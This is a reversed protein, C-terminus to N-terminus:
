EGKLKALETEFRALKEREETIKAAPAKSVFRENSLMGKARAIESELFKIQEQVRKAELEKQDDSLKVFINMSGFPILADANEEITSNALRAIMAVELDSLKESPFYKLEISHSMNSKTRFERLLKVIEIARDVESVNFDSNFSEWSDNLVEKGDILSYIHDTIFPLFPHLIVLLRRLVDKAVEKNPNDKSIEIYWSSFDEMIFKTLEKGIITFEYEDMKSSVLKELNSLKKLIWKDAISAEGKGEPMMELIYRSINWIKNNLNWAAEIKETSYRIDQGPTSNTLLFWRLADSGYKDIVDMPDIGNGLSKSMKRGDEARILGHILVDNFPKKGMIDLSQFYMRSVWFFIIDYGTVLTSTPYYRELKHTDNPWGLFSFPALGSSFWTDLVDEDQIWGEGPNEEQVKVEEGKYWAPIRHGWWLQRSICWDQINEMWAKLTDEFRGPFFKVGDDALDKLIMDAMPQMKVFWQPSVLVEIAAGSRESYGVASTTEDIKSIRGQAQLKEAVKVRAEFRDLGEFEMALSNMIGQKNICENIPLNNKKLIEFDAEAHASVKMAGTGKGIEIYEDGIIPLERGTLPHIAVKGIFHNMKEDNPHVAIAVDSFLTETRVTAITIKGGDKLDYDIYYMKQTTDKPEVEINSLVTQLAPDWNIARVGRYILGREYLNIFIKTVANYLGDDMTFRENPYDLGLGLKAWQSRITTAYEEKWEWVKDLFKERGLDYRTEGTTNRLREEVKAQTAIGAHDMGPVWMVDFGQLKKYRILTDQIFGDWAHGLHLKGTVNPPPLIITYPRKAEEHTSFFGKAIWKDNKGTEVELHNYKKDM